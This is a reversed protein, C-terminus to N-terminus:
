SVLGSESNALDFLFAVRQCNIIAMQIVLISSVSSGLVIDAM